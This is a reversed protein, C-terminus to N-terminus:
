SKEPVLRLKDAVRGLEPLSRINMKRMLNSRHVKVTTETVDLEAAIQKSLRGQVVKIMIEQERPTLAEFRERMAVLAREDDRQGRDRDAASQAIPVGKRARLGGRASAEFATGARSM